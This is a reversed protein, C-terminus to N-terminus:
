GVGAGQRMGGNEAEAILVSVRVGLAAALDCLTPWTPQREAREIKQVSTPHLGVSLALQEISAGRARRLRRVSSGLAGSDPPTVIEVGGRGGSMCDLEADQALTSVALALARAILGLRTWGLQARGAEVRALHSCDVGALQALAARSLDRSERRRRIARGLEVASPGVPLEDYRRRRAQRSTM